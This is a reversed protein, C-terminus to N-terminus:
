KLETLLALNPGCHFLSYLLPLDLRKRLWKPLKTGLTERGRTPARFLSDPSLTTIKTKELPLTTHRCLYHYRIPVFSFGTKIILFVFLFLPTGQVLVAFPKYFSHKQETVRNQTSRTFLSAHFYNVVKNPYCLLNIIVWYMYNVNQGVFLSLFLYNIYVYCTPIGAPLLGAQQSQKVLQFSYNFKPNCLALTSRM